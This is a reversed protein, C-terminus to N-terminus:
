QFRNAVLSYQSLDKEPYAGENAIIELMEIVGDALFLTASAGNPLDDSLITVGDIIETEVPFHAAEDGHEFYVFLGVGTYETSAVDLYPMQQQLQTCESSEEMLLSVIEKIFKSELM